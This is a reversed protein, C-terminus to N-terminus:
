PADDLLRRMYGRWGQYGVQGLKTAHNSDGASPFPDNMTRFGYTM